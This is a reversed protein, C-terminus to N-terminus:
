FPPEDVLGGPNKRSATSSPPAAPATSVPTAAAASGPAKPEATAVTTPQAAANGGRERGVGATASPTAAAGRTDGPPKPPPLAGSARPLDGDDGSSKSPPSLGGDALAPRPEPGTSAVRDDPPALSSVSAPATRTGTPGATRVALGLAVAAAVLVGAGIALGPGRAPRRPEVPDSVSISQPGASTLTAPGAAHDGPVERTRDAPAADTEVVIRPRSSIAPEANARVTPDSVAGGHGIPEAPTRLTPGCETGGPAPGPTPVRATPETSSDARPGVPVLGTQPDVSVAPGFDRVTVDASRRLIALTERLDRPRRERERSLLRDVLRAIEPPVSPAVESLPVINGTVLQRLVQAVTAGDVPRRGSLAEYLIVGVAWVDARADIDRECFAQEPAMYSPTGLMAGEGTIARAAAEDDDPTLLKAIGFDLVKVRTGGDEDQALFINDPKLDRHVIGIAHATGVASVVPALLRAAVEVSLPAERGLFSGLTEGRLLDMVMVPTGDEIEFVDLVDLVNPHHVASAARAERLFRERMEQRAAAPGQLFKLAASRRTITHTAEWVAGMGGRGLLRDLRYRGGIVAGAVQEGTM